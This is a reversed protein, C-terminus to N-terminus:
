EIHGGRAKVCSKLRKRWDDVAAGVKDLPYNEMARELSLKLMEINSHPESCAMLKLRTWADCDLSNLDPRGSTWEEARIFEPVHEQM